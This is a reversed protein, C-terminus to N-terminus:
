SRGWLRRRSGRGQRGPHVCLLHIVAVQDDRADVAWRVDHYDEDQSPTVAAAAIVEGDEQFFYPVGQRLYGEILDDSPHLGYVWRGYRAMNESNRAVERYFERIRGIDKEEARTLM